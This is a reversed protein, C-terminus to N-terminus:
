MSMSLLMIASEVSDTQALQLGLHTYSNLEGNITFSTKKQPLETGELGLQKINAHAYNEQYSISLIVTGADYALEVQDTHSKLSRHNGQENELMLREIIM